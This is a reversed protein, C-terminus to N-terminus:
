MCSVLKVRDMNKCEEFQVADFEKLHTTPGTTALFSALACIAVSKLEQLGTLPDVEFGSDLYVYQTHSVDPPLGFRHGSSCEYINSEAVM